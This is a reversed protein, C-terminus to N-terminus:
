QEWEMGLAEYLAKLRATLAASSLVTLTKAAARMQRMKASSAAKQHELCHTNYYAPTHGKGTHVPKFEVKGCDVCTVRIFKEPRESM